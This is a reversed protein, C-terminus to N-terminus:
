LIELKVHGYGLKTAHKDYLERLGNTYVKHNEDVSKTADMELPAGVVVSLQVPRPIPNTIIPPSISTVRMFSQQLWHTVGRWGGDAKSTALTDFIENEGFGLCPILAKGTEMALKVFGKRNQLHLKFADRQTHLAEAAGGAVLVISQEQLTKVLTAKNASIFGNALIWERFIPALFVANLTVSKREIGPFHKDFDAGNTALLCCFGIGIIGHPHYVFIYQQTPDLDKEKIIRGQFYEALYRFGPYNHFWRQWEPSLNWGGKTPSKDLFIYLSYALFTTLLYMNDTQIAHYLSCWYLVKLILITFMPVTTMANLFLFTTRLIGRRTTPRVAM